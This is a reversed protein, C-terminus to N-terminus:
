TQAIEKDSRGLTRRSAQARPREQRRWAHSNAAGNSQITPVSATAIVM